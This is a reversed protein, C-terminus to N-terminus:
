MGCRNHIEKSSRNATALRRTNSVTPSTTTQRLVSTRGIRGLKSKVASM